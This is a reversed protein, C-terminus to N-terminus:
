PQVPGPVGAGGGSSRVVPVQALLLNATAEAGRDGSVSVAVLADRSPDYVVVTRLGGGGSHGLVVRDPLRYAMVGLGYYAPLGFM